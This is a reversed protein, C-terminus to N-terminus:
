KGVRVGIVFWAWNDPGYLQEVGAIQYPFVLKLPGGSSAKIVKSNSSYALLIPYTRIDLGKVTFEMGDSAVLVIDANQDYAVWALLDALKVGGYTKEGMWPDTVTYSTVPLAKLMDMDFRFTGAGAEGDWTNILLISGSLTLVVDGAPALSEALLGQGLASAGVLAVLIAGLCVVRKM